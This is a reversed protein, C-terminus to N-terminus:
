MPKITRKLMQGVGDYVRIADKGGAEINMKEVIIKQQGKGKM